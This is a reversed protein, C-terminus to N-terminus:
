QEFFYTVKTLWKSTDPETTPDTVYEEIAPEKMTLNKEAMYADLADHAAGVDPYNGYFDVRLAKQAPIKIVKFDGADPDEAKVAVAAALDVKNEEPAWTYYLGRPMGITEYGKAQAHMFVAPLYQTYYETITNMDITEQHAIFTMAPYDIEQVNM